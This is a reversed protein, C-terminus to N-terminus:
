HLSKIINLDVQIHFKQRKFSLRFSIPTLPLFVKTLLVKWKNQMFPGKWLLEFLCIGQWKEAPILITMFM